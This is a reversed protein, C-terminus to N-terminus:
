DRSPQGASKKKLNIGYQEEGLELLTRYYASRAQEEELQARLRENEARQEAVLGATGPQIRQHRELQRYWKQITMKGGIAYKARLADIGLEGKRYEAVVREKFEETYM